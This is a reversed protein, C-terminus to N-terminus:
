DGDKLFVPSTSGAPPAAAIKFSLSAGGDRDSVSRLVDESAGFWWDGIKVAAVVLLRHKDFNDLEALTWLADNGGNYPQLSEILRVAGPDIGQVKRDFQAQDAPAS